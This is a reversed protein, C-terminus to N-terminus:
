NETENDNISETKGVYVGMLANYILEKDKATINDITNNDAQEDVAEARKNLPEQGCLHVGLFSLLSANGKAEGCAMAIQRHLINLKTLVQGRRYAQYFRSSPDNMYAEVKKISLRLMFAMDEISLGTKGYLEIQKYKDRKSQKKPPKPKGTEDLHDTLTM